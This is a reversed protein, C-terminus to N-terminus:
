SKILQYEGPMEYSFDVSEGRAGRRTMKFVTEALDAKEHLVSVGFVGSERPDGSFFETKTFAQRDKEGLFTLAGITGGLTSFEAKYFANELPVVAPAAAKEIFTEVPVVPAAPKAAEVTKTQIVTQEAPKQYAAPYFKKLLMPYLLMVLMALVIAKVTNKDM